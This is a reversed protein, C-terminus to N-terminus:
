QAVVSWSHAIDDPLPKARHYYINQAENLTNYGSMKVIDPSVYNIAVSLM